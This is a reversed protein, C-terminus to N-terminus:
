RRPQLAAPPLALLGLLQMRPGQGATLARRLARRDLDDRRGDAVRAFRRERLRRAYRAAAPGARQGLRPELETLTIHPPVDWGLRELAARLEAAEDAPAGARRRRRRARVFLAAVAAILLLVLIATPPSSEEGRPTPRPRPRDRSKARSREGGAREQRERRRQQQRESRQEPEPGARPPTASREPAARDVASRDPELAIALPLSVLGAAVVVAGAALATSPLARVRPVFLWAALCALVLAGRAAFDDVEREAGAFGILSLMLLLAGFRRAAAAERGGPGAAPPWLAFAAAPVTMLPIALLVTRNVWPDGGGYPWQRPLEDIGSALGALLQDWGGPMLMSAPIGVALPGAVLAVAVTAVRVIRAELRGHPELRATLSLVLGCATAIAVVAAVRGTPPSALLEAWSVAALACMPTFAVVARLPSETREGPGMGLAAGSSM